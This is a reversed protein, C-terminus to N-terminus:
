IQLYCCPVAVVKLLSFKTFFWQIGVVIGVQRHLSMVWQTGCYIFNVSFWIIYNWLIVVSIHDSRMCCSKKPLLWHFFITCIFSHGIISILKPVHNSMDYWVWKIWDSQVCLFFNASLYYWSTILLVWLTM